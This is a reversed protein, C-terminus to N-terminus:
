PSTNAASRREARVIAKLKARKPKAGLQGRVKTLLRDDVNLTVNMRACDRRQIEATHTRFM